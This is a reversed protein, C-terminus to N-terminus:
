KFETARPKRVSIILITMKGKCPQKHPNSLVQLIGPTLLVHIRGKPPQHDAPPSLCVHLYLGSLNTGLFVSDRWRWRHAVCALSKEFGLSGLVKRQTTKKDQGNSFVGSFSGLRWL